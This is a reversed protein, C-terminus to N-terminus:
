YTEEDPELSYGEYVFGVKVGHNPCTYDGSGFCRTPGNSELGALAEVNKLLVNDLVPQVKRAKQAVLASLVCVCVILFVKQM